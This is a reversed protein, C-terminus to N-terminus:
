KAEAPAPPKPLPADQRLAEKVMKSVSAFQDFHRKAQKILVDIEHVEAGRIQLEALAIGRDSNAKFRDEVAVGRERLRELLDNATGYQVKAKNVAAQKNERQSELRELEDQLEQVRGEIRARLIQSQTAQERWIEEPIAQNQYLREYRETKRLALRFQIALEEASPDIPGDLRKPPEIASNRTTPEGPM